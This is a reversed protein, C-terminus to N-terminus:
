WKTPPVHPPPNWKHPAAGPFQSCRVYLVGAEVHASCTRVATRIFIIRKKTRPTRKLIIKDIGRLERIRNPLLGAGDAGADQGTRLFWPRRRAQLQLLGVPDWGGECLRSPEQHQRPPGGPHRDGASPDQLLLCFSPLRSNNTKEPQRHLFFGDLPFFSEGRGTGASQGIPPLERATVFPVPSFVRLPFTHAFFVLPSSHTRGKGEDSLPTGRHRPSTERPRSTIDQLYCVLLRTAAQSRLTTQRYFGGFFKSSFYFISRHRLYM